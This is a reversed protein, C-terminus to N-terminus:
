ENSNLEKAIFSVTGDMDDTSMEGPPGARGDTGDSGDTSVEM